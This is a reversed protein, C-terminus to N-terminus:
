SNVRRSSQRVILKPPFIVHRAPIPEGAEISELLLSAATDGIKNSSQDVTTLPIRLLDSYHVNGAAAVAIDEPVRLGHALIAEIAGTAVPDNYCFVADPLPRRQLLTQM